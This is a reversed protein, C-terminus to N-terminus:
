FEQYQHLIGSRYKTIGMPGSRKSKKDEEFVEKEFQIEEEIMEKEEYTKAKDFEVKLKAAEKNKRIDRIFGNEYINGLWFMWFGSFKKQWALLQYRGEGHKKYIYFCLQAETKIVGSDDLLIRDVGKYRTWSYGLPVNKNIIIKIPHRM